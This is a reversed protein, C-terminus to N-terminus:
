YTQMKTTRAGAHLFAFRSYEYCYQLGSTARNDNIVVM